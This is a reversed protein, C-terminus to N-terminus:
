FKKKGPVLLSNSRKKTKLRAKVVSLVSADEDVKEGVRLKFKGLSYSVNAYRICGKPWHGVM